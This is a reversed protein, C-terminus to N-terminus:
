LKVDVRRLILLEEERQDRGRIRLLLGHLYASAVVVEGTYTEMVVMTMSQLLGKFNM